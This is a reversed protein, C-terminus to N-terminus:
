NVVWREHASEAMTLFWLAQAKCVIRDMIEKSSSLTKPIQCGVDDEHPSVKSGTTMSGEIM